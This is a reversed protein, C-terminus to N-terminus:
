GAFRNAPLGAVGPEVELVAGALPEAARQQPSLRHRASTVFLRTLDSGGFAPCTPNTVPLEIHADLAGAPTYRRLAAGGFLAVWIAGEADVALGDPLGDAPDISALERRGSLEGGAADFDFADLRQTVSDIFYMTESDPSWGLGNSLTTGAVVREVGAGAELRYLAASGPERRKSMTGAWLRGQPDCRCDNFRNDPVDPEVAALVTRGAPEDLVLERGVAVIRGPPASRPMVATVEGGFATTEADGGVPDWAHVLGRSIDV